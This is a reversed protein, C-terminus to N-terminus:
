PGATRREEAAVDEATFFGAAINEARCRAIVEDPTPIPAPPLNAMREIEDEPLRNGDDDFYEPPWAIGMISCHTCDIRGTHEWGGADKPPWETLHAVPWGREAPAPTM